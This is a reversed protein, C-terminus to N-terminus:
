QAASKGTRQRLLRCFVFPVGHIPGLYVIVQLPFVAKRMKASSM